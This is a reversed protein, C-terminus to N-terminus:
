WFWRICKDSFGIAELKNLLIEHNITDFAKQLDILIMGTLLGEDFDKLIKDTLSSLCLNTSHDARFGSQYNCLIKNETPFENTQDHVVKEIIKLFWHCHRSLGTNLHTTKKAKRSFLNSTQSKPLM